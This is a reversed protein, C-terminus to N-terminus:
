EPSLFWPCSILSYLVSIEKKPPPIMAGQFQPVLQIINRLNTQWLILQISFDLHGHGTQALKHPSCHRQYGSQMVGAPGSSLPARCEGVLRFFLLLSPGQRRRPPRGTRQRHPVHSAGTVSPPSMSGYRNGKGLSTCYTSKWESSRPSVAATWAEVRMARRACWRVTWWSGFKFRRQFSGRLVILNYCKCIM